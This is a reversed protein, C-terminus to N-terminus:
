GYTHGELSVRCTAGAQSSAVAATIPTGAPLIPGQVPGPPSGAQVAQRSTRCRGWEVAGAGIDYYLVVEYVASHSVIEVNCWHIDFPKVMADAGAASIIQQSAGLVWALGATLEVGAALTPRVWSPSHLHQYVAYSRGALSDGAQTDLKSGIVDSITVNDTSNVTAPVKPAWFRWRSTPM